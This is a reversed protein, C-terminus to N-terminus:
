DNGKAEKMDRFCATEFEGFKEARTYTLVSTKTHGLRSLLRADDPKPLEYCIYYFRGVGRSMEFIEAENFRSPRFVYGEAEKSFEAEETEYLSLARLLEETAPASVAFHNVARQKVGGPMSLGCHVSLRELKILLSGLISLADELEEPHPTEGGFSEGDFLFHANKPLIDEYINVTLPQSRALMRWNIHKLSDTRSYDRTSRIVTNDEMVGNAGSESNWLNRLFMDPVVNVIAPYVVIERMDSERLGLEVQTIGFGDGTRLQWNKMSYVGRKQASWHMKATVSEYWMVFSLRKEGVFDTSLKAANLENIEWIDPERREEPLLCMQRDLPCYLELWVLPLLKNNKIEIDFDVSDGPFIGGSDASVRIDLKKGSQRAWIRATLAFLGIFLLVAALQAQGFFAALAGSVACLAILPWSVLISTRTQSLRSESM